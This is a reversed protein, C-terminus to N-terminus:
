EQFNNVIRKIGDKLYAEGFNLLLGLTLKTGRLYTLVTKAFVPPLTELSKIEVLLKHEVILDARFGVDLKVGDEYFPIPKQQEVQFGHTRLHHALLAEYVSELM